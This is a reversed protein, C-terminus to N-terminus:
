EIIQQLKYQPLKGVVSKFSDCPISYHELLHLMLTNVLTEGYLRSTTGHRTLSSKLAIGIQHVLPDATAFQPLLEITYLFSEPNKQM